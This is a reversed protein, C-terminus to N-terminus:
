FRFMIGGDCPEVPFRMGIPVDIGRLANCACVERGSSMNCLRLGEESPLISIRRNYTDVEIEVRGIGLLMCAAGKNLYIARKSGQEKVRAFAQTERQEKEQKPKAAKPKTSRGISITPIARYGCSTFKATGYSSRAMWACAPRHEMSKRLTGGDTYRGPRTLITRRLRTYSVM